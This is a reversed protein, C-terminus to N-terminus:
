AGVIRVDVGRNRFLQGLGGDTVFNPNDNAGPDRASRPLLAALREACERADRSPDLKGEIVWTAMEQFAEEHFTEDLCKLNLERALSELQLSKKAGLASKDALVDALTEMRAYAQRATTELTACLLFFERPDMEGLGATFGPVNEPAFMAGLRTAIRALTNTLGPRRTLAGLFKGEMTGLWLLLDTSLAGDKLTGDTLRVEIFKTHVAEQQWILTLAEWAVDAAPCRPEPFRYTREAEGYVDTVLAERRAAIQLWARLEGEPDGQFKDSYATALKQTEILIDRNVDEFAKAVGAV